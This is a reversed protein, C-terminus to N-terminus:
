FRRRLGVKRGRGRTLAWARGRKGFHKPGKGGKKVLEVHSRPGVVDGLARAPDAAAGSVGLTAAFVIPMGIPLMWKFM